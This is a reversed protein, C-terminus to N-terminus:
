TTRVSSLGDYVVVVVSYIFFVAFTFLKKLLSVHADNLVIFLLLGPLALFSIKRLLAKLAVFVFNQQDSPVEEFTVSSANPDNTDAYSVQPDQLANSTPISRAVRRKALTVYNDDLKTTDTSQPLLTSDYEQELTTEATAANLNKDNLPSYIDELAVNRKARLIDQIQQLELGSTRNKWETVDVPVNNRQESYNNYIQIIESYDM